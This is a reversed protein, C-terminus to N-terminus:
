KFPPAYQMIPRAARCGLQRLMTRRLLDGTRIRGGRGGEAEPYYQPLLAGYGDRRGSKLPCASSFGRLEASM